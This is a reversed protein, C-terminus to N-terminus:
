SGRRARIADLEPDRVCLRHGAELCLLVRRSQAFSEVLWYGVILLGLVALGAGLNQRMRRRDEREMAARVWAPRPPLPQSPPTDSM